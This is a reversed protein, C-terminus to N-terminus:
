SEQEPWQEREDGVELVPPQKAQYLERLKFSAQAQDNISSPVSALWVRTGPKLSKALDGGQIFTVVLEDNADCEQPAELRAVVTGDPKRYCRVPLYELDRSDSAAAGRRRPLWALLSKTKGAEQSLGVGLPREARALIVRRDQETLTPGFADSEAEAAAEELLRHKLTTAWLEPDAEELGSRCADLVVVALPAAPLFAHTHAAFFAENKAVQRSWGALWDAALDAALRRAVCAALSDQDLRDFLDVAAGELERLADSSTTHDWARDLHGAQELWETPAPVQRCAALLGHGTIHFVDRVPAAEPPLAQPDFLRCLAGWAGLLACAKAPAVTPDERADQWDDACALAREVTLDRPNAAPPKMKGENM